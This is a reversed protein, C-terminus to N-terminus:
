PAGHAPQQPSPALRDLERLSPLTLRGRADRRVVNGVLILLTSRGVRSVRRGLAPCERYTAVTGSAALVVEQTLVHSVVRVLEATEVGERAQLGYAALLNEFLATLDPSPEPGLRDVVERVPEYGPLLQRMLSFLDYIDTEAPSALRWEALRDFAVGFPLDLYLQVTQSAAATTNDFRSPRLLYSTLDAYWAGATPWRRRMQNKALGVSTAVADYGVLLSLVAPTPVGDADADADSLGKLGKALREVGAGLLFQTMPSNAGTNRGPLARSVVATLDEITVPVAGVAPVDVSYTEGVEWASRERSERNRTAL